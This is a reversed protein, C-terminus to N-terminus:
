LNRLNRRIIAMSNDTQVKKLKIWNVYGFINMLIQICYTIITPLYAANKSFVCGWLVLSIMNSITYFIFNFESRRVQMYSAFLGAGTSICSVVLFETNFYKM